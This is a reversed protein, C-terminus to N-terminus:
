KSEFSLYLNRRPIILEGQFQWNSRSAYRCGTANYNCRVANDRENDSNRRRKNRIRAHTDNPLSVIHVISFDYNNNNNYIYNHNPKQFNNAM